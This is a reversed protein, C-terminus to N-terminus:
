IIARSGRGSRRVRVSGDVPLSEPPDMSGNVCTRFRGHMHESMQQNARGRGADYSAQEKGQDGSRRTDVAQAARHRSRGRNM